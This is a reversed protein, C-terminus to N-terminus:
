RNSKKIKIQWISLDDFYSFKYGFNSHTKWSVKLSNRHFCFSRFWLRLSLNFSFIFIVESNYGGLVKGDMHDINIRHDFNKTSKLKQVRMIQVCLFLWRRTKKKFEFITCKLTYVTPRIIWRKKWHIITSQIFLENRLFIM